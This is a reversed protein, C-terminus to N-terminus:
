RDPDEPTASAAAPPRDDAYGGSAVAARYRQLRQLEEPTFPYAAGDAMGDGRPLWALLETDTTATSGDWDSYFGAAVAARYAALRAIEQTTFTGNPRDLLQM